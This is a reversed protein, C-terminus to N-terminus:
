ETEPGVATFRVEIGFDEVVMETIVVDTSLAGIIKTKGALPPIATRSARLSIVDGAVESTVDTEKKGPILKQREKALKHESSCDVRREFRVNTLYALLREFTRLIQLFVLLDVGFFVVGLM